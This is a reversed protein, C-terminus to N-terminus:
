SLWDLIAPNMEFPYAHSLDALPRYTADNKDRNPQFLGVGFKLLPEAALGGTSLLASALMVLVCSWFKM